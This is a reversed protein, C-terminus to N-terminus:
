LMLCIVEGLDEMDNVLSQLTIPVEANEFSKLHQPLDKSELIVFDTNKMAFVFWRGEPDEMVESAEIVWFQGPLSQRRLISQQLKTIDETKCTELKIRKAPREVSENDAASSQRDSVMVMDGPPNFEENHEKIVLKAREEFEADDLWRKAFSELIVLQDARQTSVRYSKARDATTGDRLATLLPDFSPFGALQLTGARAQDYVGNSLRTMIDQGSHDMCLTACRCNRGEEVEQVEEAEELKKISADNDDDMDEDEKVSPEEKKEVIEAKSKRDFSVLPNSQWTREQGARNPHILLCIGNTPFDALVNSIYTAMFGKYSAPMIGVTPCSM